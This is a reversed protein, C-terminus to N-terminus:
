RFFVTLHGEILEAAHPTAAEEDGNVLMLEFLLPDATRAALILYQLGDLLNQTVLQAIAQGDPHVEGSGILQM